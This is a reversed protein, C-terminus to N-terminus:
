GNRSRSRRIFRKLDGPDCLAKERDVGGDVIHEVVLALAM